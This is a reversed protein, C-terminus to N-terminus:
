ADMSGGPATDFGVAGLATIAAKYSGMTTGLLAYTQAMKAAYSGVENLVKDQLAGVDGGDKPPAATGAKQSLAELLKGTVSELGEAGQPRDPSFDAPLKDKIGMGSAADIVSQVSEKSAVGGTKASDQASQIASLVTNVKQADLGGSMIATAVGAGQEPSAVQKLTNLATVAAVQQAPVLSEFGIQERVAVGAKQKGEAIAALAPANQAMYNQLSAVASLGPVRISAGTKGELDKIKKDADEESMGSLSNRLLADATMARQMEAHSFDMSWGGIGQAAQKQHMFKKRADILRRKYEASNKKLELLNTPSDARLRGEKYPESAGEQLLLVDDFSVDGGMAARYQGDDRLTKYSKEYLGGERYTGFLDASRSYMQYMAAARGPGDSVVDGTYFGTKSRNLGRADVGGGVDMIKKVTGAPLLDALEGLIVGTAGGDSASAAASLTASSLAEGGLTKLVGEPTLAGTTSLVKQALRRKEAYAVSPLVKASEPAAEKALDEVFTSSVTDGFLFSSLGKYAWKADDKVTSAVAGVVRRATTVPLSGAAIAAMDRAVGVAGGSNIVSPALIALNKNTQHVTDVADAKRQEERYGPSARPGLAIKEDTSMGANQMFDLWATELQEERSMKAVLKGKETAMFKKDSVMVRRQTEAIHFSLSDMGGMTTDVDRAALLFKKRDKPNTFAKDVRRNLETQDKGDLRDQLRKYYLDENFKVEGTRDYEDFDTGLTIMKAPNLLGRGAQKHAALYKLLKLNGSQVTTVGEGQNRFLDPNDAAARSGERLDRAATRQHWMQNFLGTQGYAAGADQVYSYAQATSIGAAAAGGGVIGMFQNVAMNSTMGPQFGTMSRIKQLQQASEEITTGLVEKMTIIAKIDESIAARLKPLDEQIVRTNKGRTAGITSKMVGSQLLSRAMEDMPVKDTSPMIGWGVDRYQGSESEITRMIETSFNFVQNRDLQKKGAGVVRQDHLYQAIDRRGQRFAAGRGGLVGYGSDATDLLNAGLTTAGAVALGPLFGATAVAGFGALEAVGWAAAGYSGLNKSLHLQGADLASSVRYNLLNRNYPLWNGQSIPDGGMRAAPPGTLGFPTSPFHAAMFNSLLGPAQFQQVGPAVPTLVGQPQIANIPAMFSGAVGGIFRGGVDMAHAASGAAGAVMRSGMTNVSDTFTRISMNLQDISGQLQPNYGGGGPAAYGGGGMLDEM